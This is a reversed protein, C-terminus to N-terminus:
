AAVARLSGRTRRGVKFPSWAVDGPIFGARSLMGKLCLENPAWVNTADGECGEPWFEAAPYDLDMCSMETELFLEGVDDTVERILKLLGFMDPVHYLLGYCLVVDFARYGMQRRLFEYVDDKIGIVNSRLVEKAIDFGEKLPKSGKPGSSDEGTWSDIALVKVAGEKEALFSYKGDWAGLDLVRKGKFSEPLQLYSEKADPYEELGLTWVGPELEISHLWKIEKVRRLQTETM